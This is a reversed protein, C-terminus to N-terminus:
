LQYMTLTLNDKKHQLSVKLAQSDQLCSDESKGYFYIFFEGLFILMFISCQLTVVKEFINKRDASFIPWLNQYKADYLRIESSIQGRKICIYIYKGLNTFIGM